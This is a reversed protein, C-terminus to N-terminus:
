MIAVSPDRIGNVCVVFPALWAGRANTLEHTTNINLASPVPPLPPTDSARTVARAIALHPWPLLTGGTKVVAYSGTARTVRYRASSFVREAITKTCRLRYGDGKTHTDLINFLM